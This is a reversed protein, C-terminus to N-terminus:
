KKDDKLKFIYAKGDTFFVDKIQNKGLTPEIVQYEEFSDIKHIKEFENKIFDKEKDIAPDISHVLWIYFKLGEDFHATGVWIPVNDKTVFSTKWFHVHHKFSISSKTTTPKQFAIDNIKSDWFSPTGYVEPYPQRLIASKLQHIVSKFNLTDAKVWGASIFTNTINDETSAIVIGIPEMQKGVLTESFKNIKSFLDKDLNNLQTPAVKTNQPPTILPHSKYFIIVFAIWLFILISSIIFIKKRNIEIKEKPNFKKRISAITVLITLWAIGSVLSALVDSPWHAGLFIRSLGILLILIIGFTYTIIRALKKKLNHAIFFTLLGYFAIATFTHGSPFSFSNEIVLADSLSPRPRDITNKIISVFIEGGIVSTLLSLLYFRQKLLILIIGTIIMGAIIIEGRGLYTLFLMVQNVAPTRFLKFISLLRFDSKIISEQGIYDHLIGFFFYIFIFTIISGITLYLGFKEDPTLRKKIFNFFRPYKHRVRQIEPDNKIGHSVSKAVSKFIKKVM